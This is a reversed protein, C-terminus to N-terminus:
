SRNIRRSKKQHKRQKRTRKGGSSTSNLSSFLSLIEEISKDSTNELTNLKRKKTPKNDNHQKLYQFFEYTCTSNKEKHKDCKHGFIAYLQKELESNGYVGKEELCEKYIHALAEFPVNYSYESVKISHGSPLQEDLIHPQDDFFYIQNPQLDSSAKCPGSELLKKLVSFTKKAHGITPRIHSYYEEERGSTGWYICDCILSPTGLYAHIIDRVLELNSLHGNNSYIVVAKIIGKQQLDYLKEMVKLIGPRLLGLPENSAEKETIKELFIEYLEQRLDKTKELSPLYKELTKKDITKEPRLALLFYYVKDLHALTEDLDFVAYAM